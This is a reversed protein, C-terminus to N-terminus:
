GDVRRKLLKWDELLDQEVARQSLYDEDLNASQTRVISVVDADHQESGGLERSWRLKSLISDEPSLMELTSGMIVGRRRRDFERRAHTEGSLLFLEVKDGTMTDILNAMRGERLARESLYYRDSPFAAVLNKINDLDLDIVMDVDHTSRPVGYYSSVHSGVLMSRIGLEGLVELVLKLLEAQSM